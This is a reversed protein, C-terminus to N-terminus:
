DHPEKQKHVYKKSYERSLLESQILEAPQMEKRLNESIIKALFIGNKAATEYWAFARVRDKAVGKGHLYMYALIDQAQAHGARAAKNFWYFAQQDNQAIGDGGYYMFALNYEADIHGNAALRSFLTFATSYDETQYAKLATDFDDDAYLLTYFAFCFGAMVLPRLFKFISDAIFMLHM